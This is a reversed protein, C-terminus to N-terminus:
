SAQLQQRNIPHTLRWWLTPRQIAKNLIITGITKKQAGTGITIVGVQSGAGAPASITKLSIALHLPTGRWGLVSVNRAVIAQVPSQNWTPQYTGVIDGAKFLQRMAFGKEASVLLALADQKAAGINPAGMVAGVIRVTTGANVKYDSAFIYAGKDEDNNGTKIGIINRVGLLSNTNHITGVEPIVATKEDVIQAITPNQMATLGLQVLDSASSRSTPSFGSADTGITTEKMGLQRVYDNAFTRYADQSGFAWRVLTDAMNNASRLLLAELAQRETLVQGARIPVVSGHNAFYWNYLEADHETMTISPGSERPALPRQKLVSLAVVVKITSATAISSTAGHSDLLGYGEAGIAAQGYAPWSLAVKTSEQPYNQATAEGAIAHAPVLWSAAGIYLALLIVGFSLLRRRWSHRKRAPRVPKNSNYVRTHM